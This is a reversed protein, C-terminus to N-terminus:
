ERNKPARTGALRSVAPGPPLAAAQRRLSASRWPRANSLDYAITLYTANPNGSTVAVINADLPAALSGLNPKDPISADGGSRGAFAASLSFAATLVVAVLVCVVQFPGNPWRLGGRM